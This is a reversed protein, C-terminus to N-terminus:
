QPSKLSRYEGSKMSEAADRIYGFHQELTPRHNTWLELIAIRRGSLNQQHQLNKDCIILLQFGAAEAERLLDGNELQGWGVRVATHVEHGHLANRIQVPTCVDLLIKM